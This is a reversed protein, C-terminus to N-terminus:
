KVYEQHKGPVNQPTQLTFHHSVSSSIALTPLWNAPCIEYTDNSQEFTEVHEREFRRTANEWEPEVKCILTRAVSLDHHYHGRCVTLVESLRCNGTTSAGSLGPPASHDQGPNTSPRLGWWPTTVSVSAQLLRSDPSSWHVSQEPDM